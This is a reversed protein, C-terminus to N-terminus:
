AEETMSHLSGTDAFGFRVRKLGKGEEFVVAMGPNRGIQHPYFAGEELYGFIMESNIRNMVSFGIRMGCMDRIKTPVATADTKQTMLVVTIAAARGRKLLSSVLAEIEDVLARAEKNTPRELFAQCEDAIVILHTCDQQSWLNQIRNERMIGYRAKMEETLSLFMDRVDTLFQLESTEEIIVGHKSLSELFLWDASSKGDVVGFLEVKNAQKGKVVYPVLGALMSASKGSGAQGGVLVGSIGSFRMEICNDTEDKCPFVSFRDFDTKVDNVTEVNFSEALPDSEFFTVEILGDQNAEHSVIEANFVEKHDECYQYLKKQTVGPLDNINLQLITKGPKEWALAEYFNDEREKLLGNRTLFDNATVTARYEARIRRNRTFDSLLIKRTTKLIQKESNQSALVILTIVFALATWGNHSAIAATVTVLLATLRYNWILFLTKVLLKGLARFLAHLLKDFFDMDQKETAAM